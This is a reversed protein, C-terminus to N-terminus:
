KTKQEQYEIKLKSWETQWAKLTINIQSISNNLKSQNNKPTKMDKNIKEKMDQITIKIENMQKNINEKLENLQKNV